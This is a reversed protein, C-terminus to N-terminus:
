ESRALMANIRDADLRLGRVVQGAKGLPPLARGNVELRLAAANGVTIRFENRAEFRRSEGSRLTGSFVTRGDASLESWCAQDTSVSLTLPSAVPSPSGTVPASPAASSRSETPAPSSSSVPTSSSTPAPVPQSVPAPGTAPAVQRIHPSLAVPPLSPARAEEGRSRHASRWIAAGILVAVAAGVVGLVVARLSPRRSAGSSGPVPPKGAPSGKMDSLYANVMEEPDLGLHAAYARIFGRTFVPAPLKESDGRELAQLHRVSIKTAAAISELSVERLLRQRKLEDGFTAEAPQSESM